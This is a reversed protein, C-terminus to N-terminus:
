VQLRRAYEKALMINFLKTTGYIGMGSRNDKNDKGQLLDKWDSRGVAEAISSCASKAHKCEHGAPLSYVSCMLPEKIM